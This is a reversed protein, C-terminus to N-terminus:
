AFLDIGKNAAEQGIKMIKQNLMQIKQRKVTENLNTDQRVQLKMSSLEQFQSKLDGGQSTTTSSSAPIKKEGVYKDHINKAFTMLTVLQDNPLEMMKDALHKKDGLTDRMISKFDETVSDAKDGFVQKRLEIFDKEVKQQNEINPKQIEYVLNEYDQVLAEGIEKPIKHKHLLNKVKNDINEDRDIDKLDEISKFTYEEPNEPAGLLGKQGILKQANSFQNWLDNETKIQKAWKEDKFEDPIKFDTIRKDKFDQTKTDQTQTDQTKTDQQQDQTQTDQTQTQTDQTQTQTSPDSM